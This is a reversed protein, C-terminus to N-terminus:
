IMVNVPFLGHRPVAVMHICGKRIKIKYEDVSNLIAM